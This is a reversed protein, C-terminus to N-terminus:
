IGDTAELMDNLRTILSDRAEDGVGAPWDTEDVGRVTVTGGANPATVTVTLKFPRNNAAVAKAALGAYLGEFWDQCAVCIKADVEFNVEVATTPAPRRDLEREVSDKARAWAHQEAHTRGGEGGRAVFGSGKSTKGLYVDARTRALVASGTSARLMRGVAANGHSRQLELVVNATTAAARPKAAATQRRAHIEDHQREM